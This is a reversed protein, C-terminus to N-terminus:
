AGAYAWSLVAELRSDVGFKLLIIEVRDHVARSSLGLMAAIEKDSHGKSLLDMMEREEPTLIKLLVNVPKVPFRLDNWDIQAKSFELPSPSYYNGGERVRCIAQAMEWIPCDKLLIGQVEKELCAQVYGEDKHDLMVIIKAEPHVTRIGETLDAGTRYFLRIDLLSVDPKLEQAMDLCEREDGAIGLPAIGPKASLLAVTNSAFPRYANVVLVKVPNQVATPEEM